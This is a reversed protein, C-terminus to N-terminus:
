CLVLVLAAVAVVCVSVGVTLLAYWLKLNHYRKANM